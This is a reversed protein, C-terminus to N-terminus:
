RFQWPELGVAIADECVQLRPYRWGLFGFGPKRPFRRSREVTM